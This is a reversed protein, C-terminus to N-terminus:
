PKSPRAATLASLPSCPTLSPPDNVPSSNAHSIGRVPPPCLMLPHESSWLDGANPPPQMSGTELNSPPKKHLVSLAQLAGQWAQLRCRAGRGPKRVARAENLAVTSSRSATAAHFAQTDQLKSGPSMEGGWSRALISGTSSWGPTQLSRAALLAQLLGPADTQASTPARQAGGHGTRPNRFRHWGCGRSRPLAETEGSTFSPTLSSLQGQSARPAKRAALALPAVAASEGRKHQTEM